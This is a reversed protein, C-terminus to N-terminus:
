FNLNHDSFFVFLEALTECLRERSCGHARKSSYRCNNSLRFVAHAKKGERKERTQRVLLDCQLILNLACYTFFTNLARKARCVSRKCKLPRLVYCVAVTLGWIIPRGICIADAGLALAKFIDTGCRVGGDILVPVRGGVAAVIEPLVEITAPAHDLQRGGHNSVIIAAAGHSIAAHADDGRMIGKVLVKFFACLLRFLLFYVSCVPLKSFEVLWRLDNWNLSQDLSCSEKDLTASAKNTCTTEVLFFQRILHERALSLTHTM